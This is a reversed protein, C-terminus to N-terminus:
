HRTFLLRWVFKNIKTIQFCFFHKHKFERYVARIYVLGHVTYCAKFQTFFSTQHSHCHCNPQQLCITEFQERIKSLRNSEDSEKWVRRRGAFLFKTFRVGITSGASVIGGLVLFAWGGALGFTFGITRGGSSSIIRNSNAFPWTVNGGFATKTVPVLFVIRIRADSRIRCMALESNPRTNKSRFAVPSLTSIWTGFM